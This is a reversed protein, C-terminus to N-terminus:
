VQNPVYLDFLMEGFARGAGFLLFVQARQARCDRGGRKVVSGRGREARPNAFHLKSGSREAGVRRDDQCSAAMAAPM